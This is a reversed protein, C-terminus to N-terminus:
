VCLLIHKQEKEREEREGRERERERERERKRKRSRKREPQRINPIYIKQGTIVWMATNSLAPKIVAGRRCIYLHQKRAHLNLRM